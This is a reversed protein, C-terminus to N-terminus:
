GVIGSSEIGQVFKKQAFLYIILLPIVVLFTAANLMASSLASGSQLMEGDILLSGANNIVKNLLNFGTFFLTSYYDDTWQWSFAFLFITVMMPIALPLIISFFTRFDGAGDVDAAEQLENPVGRFFQRMMFVYLGNKLGLGTVSLLLLPFFSDITNISGGTLLKVLGFLDFEKFIMYYATSLTQPPIIMTFVVLAFVLGNGRFKYKAFGYGIFTCFFTQLIGTLLSLLGTHWLAEFYDTGVIVNKINDLTPSRPILNVTKDAIDAKSMLMSSFKAIFPYIIIFALGILLLYRLFSLLLGILYTKNKLKYFRKTRLPKVKSASSVAM